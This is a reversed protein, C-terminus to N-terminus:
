AHVCLSLPSSLEENSTNIAMKFSYFYLKAVHTMLSIISEHSSIHENFCPYPYSIYIDKYQTNALHLHQCIYQMCLILHLM